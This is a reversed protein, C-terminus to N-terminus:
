QIRRFVAQNTVRNYILLEFRPDARLARFVQMEEAAPRGRMLFQRVQSLDKFDPHEWISAYAGDVAVWRVEGPLSLAGGDSSIFHVPRQLDAGFAPHIWTGFKAEIAVPERPGARRDVLAAARNPDFAVARTAPNQRVWQVYEIPVFADHEANAVAYTSFSVAGIVALPVVLLQRRLLPAITWGFVIPVM